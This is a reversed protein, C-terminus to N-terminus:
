RDRPHQAGPNQGQYPKDRVNPHEFREYQIAPVWKSGVGSASLPIEFLLITSNTHKVM